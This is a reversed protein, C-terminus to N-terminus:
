DTTDTSDADAKQESDPDEKVLYVGDPKILVKRHRYLVGIAKKYTAKSMGFKEAIEEPSSKDHLNLFGDHMELYELVVDTASLVNKFGGKQLSLDILGDERITKIYAIFEDGIFVDQFIENHYLLGKHKGNIICSFGLPSEEYVLIEVEAGGELTCDENSVFKDIKTSAVIRKSIEDLYVYVVYYKNQEMEFKQENFPSFLEKELGWDLFAGVDTIANVRLCAFNNLQVIPKRTTAILRNESDNLIFVDLKDKVKIDSKIYSAPLLVENNEDDGLYMGVATERLVKLTNIKGIAIM